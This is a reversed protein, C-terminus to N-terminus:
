ELLKQTLQKWPIGTQKELGQTTIQLILVVIDFANKAGKTLVWLPILLGFLKRSDVSMGHLEKEIDEINELIKNKTVPNLDSAESVSQRLKLLLEQIQKIDPESLFEEGFLIDGYRQGKISVGNKYIMERYQNIREQIFGATISVFEPKGGSVRPHGLELKLRNGCDVLVAMVEVSFKYREEPDPMNSLKEIYYDGIGVVVEYPHLGRLSRLFDKEIM